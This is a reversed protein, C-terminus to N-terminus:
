SVCNCPGNAGQCRTPPPEDGDTDAGTDSRGLPLSPSDTEAAADEGGTQATPEGMEEAQDRQMALLLSAMKHRKSKLHFKFHSSPSRQVIRSCPPIWWSGSTSLPGRPFPLPGLLPPTPLPDVTQASLPTSPSRSPSRYPRCTNTCPSSLPRRKGSSRPYKTTPLNARPWPVAIPQWSGRM